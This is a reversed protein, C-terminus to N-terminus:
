KQLAKCIMTIVRNWATQPRCKEMGSVLGGTLNQLMTLSFIETMKQM